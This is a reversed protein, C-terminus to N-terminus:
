VQGIPDVSPRGSIGRQAFITSEIHREHVIRGLSEKMGNDEANIWADVDNAPNPEAADQDASLGYFAPRSSSGSASASRVSSATLEVGNNPAPEPLSM